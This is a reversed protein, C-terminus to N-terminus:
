GILILTEWDRDFDAPINNSKKKKDLKTRALGRRLNDEIDPNNLRQKFFEEDMVNKQKVNIKIPYFIPAFRNWDVIDGYLASRLEYLYNDVKPTLIVVSPKGTRFFNIIFLSVGETYIMREIQPDNIFPIKVFQKVNPLTLDLNGGFSDSFSAGGAATRFSFNSLGRETMKSNIAAITATTLGVYKLFLSRIEAQDIVSPQLIWNIISEATILNRFNVDKQVLSVLESNSALTIQREGSVGIIDFLQGPKGRLGAFFNGHVGTLALKSYEEGYEINFIGTWSFFRELPLERIPIMARQFYLRGLGRRSRTQLQQPGKTSTAAERIANRWQGAYSFTNFQPIRKQKSLEREHSIRRLEEGAIASAKIV